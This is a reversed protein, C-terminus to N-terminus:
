KINSFTVSLEPTTAIIGAMESMGGLRLYSSANKATCFDQTITGPMQVSQGSLNTVMANEILKGDQIYMRRIEGLTGNTTNDTTLFQTVVTFPKSTDVTM